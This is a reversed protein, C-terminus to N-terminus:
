VAIGAVGQDGVRVCITVDDIAYGPNGVGGTDIGTGRPTPHREHRRVPRCTWSCRSGTARERTGARSSKPTCSRATWWRTTSRLAAQPRGRPGHPGAFNLAQRRAHPRGGSSLGGHQRSSRVDCAPLQHRSSAGFPAFLLRDARGFVDPPQSGLVLGRRREEAAPSRVDRPDSGQTGSEACTISAGPPKKRVVDDLWHGARERVAHCEDIEIRLDAGGAAERVVELADIGEPWVAVM